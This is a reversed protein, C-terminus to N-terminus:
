VEGHFFGEDASLPGHSVIAEAGDAGDTSKQIKQREDAADDDQCLRFSYIRGVTEKQYATQNLHSVQDIKIEQASFDVTM